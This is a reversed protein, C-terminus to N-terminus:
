RPASKKEAAGAASQHARIVSGDICFLGWDIGGGQLTRVQLRLLIRDWLGRRAWARFRGYVTQWPGFEAPVNRWRGGDSLAWLIGDIITRHDHWQGGRRGNAPLLGELQDWQADSLRYTPSTVTM